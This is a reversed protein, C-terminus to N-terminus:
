TKTSESVRQCAILPLGMNHVKLLLGHLASQDAVPGTLTTTGDQAREISMDGLWASWEDDLHGEVRICYIEPENM